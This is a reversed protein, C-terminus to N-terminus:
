ATVMHSPAIMKVMWPVRGIATYREGLTSPGRVVKQLTTEGNSESVFTLREGNFSVQKGPWNM